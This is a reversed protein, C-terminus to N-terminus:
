PRQTSPQAQNYPAKPSRHYLADLIAADPNLQEPFGGIEVIKEILADLQDGSEAALALLDIKPDDPTNSKRQHLLMGITGNIVTLPQRLEQGIEALLERLKSVTLRMNPKDEATHRAPRALLQDLAGIKVSADAIAEAVQRNAQELVPAADHAQEPLVTKLAHDSATKLNILLARLRAARAEASVVQADTNDPTTAPDTASLLDWDEASMGAELLKDRLATLEAEDKAARRVQRRIREETADSLAKQKLFRTVVGEIELDETLEEVTATIAARADEPQEFLASRELLHKEVQQLLRKVNQRGKQTRNAHVQMLGACARQLGLVVAGASRSAVPDPGAADLICDALPNASDASECMSVLDDNTSGTGKLFAVVNAIVTARAEAQDKIAPTLLTKAIVAEDETLRQYTIKASKVHTLGAAGLIGGAAAHPAGDPLPTVLVSILREFEDDQLEPLLTLNDIGLATLRARLLQTSSSHDGVVTAGSVFGDPHVAIDFAGFKQLFQRILVLSEARVNRTVNHAAGYLNTNALVFGLSRIVNSIAQTPVADAVVSERNQSM